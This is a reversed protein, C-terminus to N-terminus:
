NTPAAPKKDTTDVDLEVNVNDVKDAVRGAREQIDSASKEIEPGANRLAEAARDAAESAENAVVDAGRDIKEEDIAITSSGNSNETVNCAGLLGVCALAITHFRTM